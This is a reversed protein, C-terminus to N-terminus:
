GPELSVFKYSQNLCFVFLRELDVPLQMNLGSNVAELSFVSTKSARGCKKSPLRYKILLSSRHGKRCGLSAIAVENESENKDSPPSPFKQM